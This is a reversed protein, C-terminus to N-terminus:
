PHLDPFPPGSEQGPSAQSPGVGKEAQWFLTSIPSPSLFPPAAVPSLSGQGRCTVAPKHVLSTGSQLWSRSM